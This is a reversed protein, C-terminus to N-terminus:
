CDEGEKENEDLRLHLHVREEGKENKQKDENPFIDTLHHFHLQIEDRLSRQSRKEGTTGRRQDLLIKETTSRIDFSTQRDRQVARDLRFLDKEITAPRLQDPTGRQDVRHMPSKAMPQRVVVNKEGEVFRKEVLQFHMEDISPNEREVALSVTTDM